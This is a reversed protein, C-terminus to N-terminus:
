MTPPMSSASAFAFSSDWYHIHRDDGGLGLYPLPVGGAHKSRAEGVGHVKELVRCFVDEGVHVEGLLM